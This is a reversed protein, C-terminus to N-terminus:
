MWSAVKLGRGGWGQVQKLRFEFCWTLGLVFVDEEMEFVNGGWAKMM